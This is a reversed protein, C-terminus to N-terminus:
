VGVATGGLRPDAAASPANGADPVRVLVHSSGVPSSGPHAWNEHGVSGDAERQWRPGLVLEGLDAGSDAVLDTLLQANWEIQHEGGSTAGLVAPREEDAVMWAHLTTAPRSGSRVANPASTDASFGRGARNSLVLDYEGLVLGSGFQPFSNSHVFVVAMGDRDVAAVASTGGTLAVAAPDGPRSATAQAVAAPMAAAPDADALGVALAALLAEGYSPAPTAYIHTDGVSLVAADSWVARAQRLDDATLVGGAAAVRDALEAGISGHFLEDQLEVFVRLLRALGPLALQAGLALPGAAPRYVCGGPQWRLLLEDAQGALRTCLASWVIGREALRIAPEALVALGLRGQAALAAYGAPAAPVAVSLPGTLQLGHEAAHNPLAAPAPGLATLARPQESEGTLVLGILEGALGCKSPMLVTEALAAAVAADAANGGRDLMSAGIMAATRATCALAGDRGTATANAALLARAPDSRGPAASEAWNPRAM